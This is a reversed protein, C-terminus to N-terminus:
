IATYLMMKSFLIQELIPIGDQSMVLYSPTDGSRPWIGVTQYYREIDIDAKIGCFHCDRLVYDLKDADFAGNIIDAKYQEAPGPAKGIIFGAIRDVDFAVTYAAQVRELYARFPRSTVILHALIEGTNANEYLSDADRRVQELQDAFREELITEGLHSFLVHGTDHLLAALRLERVATDDVVQQYGAIRLADTISTATKLVGLSHEFRTHVASPYVLYALATQHIYRLRQVIPSDVVAVEHPHLFLYGHVADRVIKRSCNAPPVFDHIQEEVWGDIETQLTELESAM